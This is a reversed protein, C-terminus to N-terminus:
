ILRARAPRQIHRFVWALHTHVAARDETAWGQDLLEVLAEFGEGWIEKLKHPAYGAALLLRSHESVSLHLAAALADIIHQRPPERNGHEIRTLYSPDVGVQKALKNRSIKARERYGALQPAFDAHEPLLWIPERESM